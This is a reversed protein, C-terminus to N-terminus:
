SNAGPHAEGTGATQRRGRNSPSMEARTPAVRDRVLFVSAVLGMRDAAIVRGNLVRSQLPQLQRSPASVMRQELSLLDLDILEHVAGGHLLRLVERCRWRPPSRASSRRAWPRARSCRSGAATSREARRAYRKYAPRDEVQEDRRRAAALNRRAPRSAPLTHLRMARFDRHGRGLGAEVVFDFGVQDLAQRGRANDLGCLAIPPSMPAPAQVIATSCGSTFRRDFLGPARGMGGDRADEQARDHRLRQPDVHERDLAHHHRHGAPGPAPKRRTGIPCFARAGLSLSPWSAGPRDAVAAVAPAHLAPESPPRARALRTAPAPDWLSLGSRAGARSPTRGSVYLFAENVASRPRSCRRWRWSPAPVARGLDAHAPVIGGRWGRSCRASTFRGDGHSRPGAASSRDTPTRDARSGSAAALRSSPRPSRPRRVSLPVTLPADLAGGVSVGGLFVRRPRARRRDPAGGSPAPRSAAEQASARACPPIRRVLGRSRRHERRRRQRASAQRPPALNDAATFATM